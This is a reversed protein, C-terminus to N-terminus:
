SPVIAGAPPSRGRCQTVTLRGRPFNTSYAGQTQGNPTQLYNVVEDGNYTTTSPTTANSTTFPLTSTQSGGFVYQSQYGTNALSILEDRIGSLQIAVSGLQSPNLTGNNASTAVSVAQTLQTVASGLASDAIQLQGQVLNSSETFSDDGQIRNLLQM